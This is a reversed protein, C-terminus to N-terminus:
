QEWELITCAAFKELSTCKVKTWNLRRQNTLIVLINNKNKEKKSPIIKTRLSQM